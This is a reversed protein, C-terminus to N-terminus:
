CTHLWDIPAQTRAAGTFNILYLVSIKIEENMVNETAFKYEIKLQKVVSNNFQTETQQNQAEILSAKKM